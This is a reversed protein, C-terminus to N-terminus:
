RAADELTGRVTGNPDRVLCLLARDGAAWTEASPAYYEYTLTSSAFPIGIFAAFQQACQDIGAQAVTEAGPFDGDALLISAFVEADHPDACDVSQVSTVTSASSDDLICTGVVLDVADVTPDQTPTVEVSGGSACGSLVAAAALALVAATPTFSRM